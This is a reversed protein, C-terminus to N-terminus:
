GRFCEARDTTHQSLSHNTPPISAESRRQVRKAKEKKKERKEGIACRDTQFNRPRKSKGTYQFNCATTYQVVCWLTKEGDLLLSVCSCLCSCLRALLCAVGRRVQDPQSCHRPWGLSGEYGAFLRPSGVQLLGKRPACRDRM